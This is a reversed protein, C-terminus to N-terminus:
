PLRGHLVKLEQTIARRDSESMSAVNELMDDWKIRPAIRRLREILEIMMPFAAARPDSFGTRDAALGSFPQCPFGGVVLGNQLEEHEALIDGLQQDTVRSLDGLHRAEPWARSVVQICDGSTEISIYLGPSGIDLLELARRAGGIGDFVGILVLGKLVKEKRPLTTLIRVSERPEDDSGLQSLYEFRESKEDPRQLQYRGEARRLLCSAGCTREVIQSEAECM